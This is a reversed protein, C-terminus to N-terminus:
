KRDAYYKCMKYYEPWLTDRDYIHPAYYVKKHNDAEAIGIKWKGPEPTGFPSIIIGNRICYLYHEHEEKTPIYDPVQRAKKAKEWKSLGKM